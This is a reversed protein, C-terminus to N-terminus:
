LAAACPAWFRRVKPLGRAVAIVRPIKRLDDLGIGM